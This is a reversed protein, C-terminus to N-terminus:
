ARKKLRTPKAVSMLDRLMASRLVANMRTQYGRGKGRLWHVVDSDLRVTLQSKNPRYFPNKIANRFFEDTLEPSDSLDIQDGSLKALQALRAKQADNELNKADDLAMRVWKIDAGKAQLQRVRLSSASSKKKTM